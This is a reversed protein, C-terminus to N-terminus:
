PSKRVRANGAQRQRGRTARPATSSGSTWQAALRQARAVRATAGKRRYRDIAREAAEEAGAQDGALHQVEALNLAADGQDELADTTNVLDDAQRALAVAAAVDGERALLKSRVGLGLIQTKLDESSGLEM